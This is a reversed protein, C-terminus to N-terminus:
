QPENTTSPPQTVDAPQDAATLREDLAFLYRAADVIGLGRGNAAAARLRVSPEHLFKNTLSESFREVAARQEPTLDGLRRMAAALERERLRHMEERLQTLVPVAALGAVWQWFSEVEEAIVVEAAPLESMRRELNASVMAQLDDLDYLYVNALKGVDPSVDRPLAIDLICIPRHGRRAIADRVREPNVVPRPAATSCILVDVEALAAWAEEYHVATAGYQSALEQAREFTRNAVIAAHVGEQQLSALALEAMEGAGLVMARRGTLAGFIKKALQVAASSVSLAGHGLQTESRVRGGTLLANQFLRNLVTGSAPRSTEWADRVQGHIQAEGVVMSDMGSAVRFLHAAAARDRRVYGYQSADSGLRESLMAWADSAAEREGEVLYLETRNCTSLLVGERAGAVALLRELTPVVDRAPYALRERVDLPAGHHSLGLVIVAM